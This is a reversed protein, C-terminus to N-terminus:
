PCYAGSDKSRSSTANSLACIKRKQNVPTPRSKECVQRKRGSNEHPEGVSDDDQAARSGYLPRRETLEGVSEDDKLSRRVSPDRSV